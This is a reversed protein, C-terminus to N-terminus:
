RKEFELFSKLCEVVNEDTVEHGGKVIVLKKNINKISDYFEKVFNVSTVNDESGHLFVIPCQIKKLIEVTPYFERPFSLEFNYSTRLSYTLSSQMILGAVDPYKEALYLSVGSGICKGYLVIKRKSIRLCETLFWFVAECDSYIFTEISNDSGLCNAFYEFVLINAINLPVLVSEVWECTKSFDESAGHCILITFEKEINYFKVPITYGEKTRILLSSNKPPTKSPFSENKSYSCGM